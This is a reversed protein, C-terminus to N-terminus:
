NVTAGAEIQDKAESVSRYQALNMKLAAVQVERDLLDPDLNYHGEVCNIYMDIYMNLLAAACFSSPTGVMAEVFRERLWRRDEIEKQELEDIEDHEMEEIEKQGM